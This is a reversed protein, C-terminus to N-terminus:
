SNHGFTQALMRTVGLQWPPTVLEFTSQLKQTNLRSNLPRLAATKYNATSIPNLKTLKLIVNNERAVALVYEAYNFWSTEGNAALHYIGALELPTNSITLSRIIHATCDAILDAGTPAGIQDNVVSLEKREKALNLINKAFNKGHCAYVWSTRLIIYKRCSKIIYQEGALKTNGYINLPAALDDEKWANAGEGNFVYDTSYHILWADINNAEQALISIAEANTLYAQVLDNEAKDVNTYAAANVIIDPKIKRITNALGQLNNLDGCYYKFNNKANRELAIVTGLPSLSRQLEWGLQGNRGLLLIRM